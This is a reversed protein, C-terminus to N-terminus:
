LISPRAMTLCSTWWGAKPASLDGGEIGQARWQDLERGWESLGEATHPVMRAAVKTGHEDVGWVAHMQDAWDVGLYYRV